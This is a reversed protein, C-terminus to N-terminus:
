GKLRQYLANIEPDKSHAKLTSLVKSGTIKKDKIIKIIYTITDINKGSLAGQLASYGDFLVTNKSILYDIVHNHGGICAYYINNRCFISLDTQSKSNVFEMLEISGGQCAANYLGVWNWNVDRLSLFEIITKNATKYACFMGNSYINNMMVEDIINNQNNQSIIDLIHKIMDIHGGKCAAGFAYFLNLSFYEPKIMHKSTFIIDAIDSNGKFCIIQLGMYLIHAVIKDKAMYNTIYYSNDEECATIFKHKM